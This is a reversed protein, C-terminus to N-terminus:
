LDFLTQEKDDFIALLMTLTLFFSINISHTACSSSVVSTLLFLTGFRWQFINLNGLGLESMSPIMLINWARKPAKDPLSEKEKSSMEFVNTDCFRTADQPRIPSSANAREM